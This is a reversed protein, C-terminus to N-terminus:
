RSASGPASNTTVDTSNSRRSRQFSSQCIGRRYPMRWTRPSFPPGARQRVREAHNVQHEADRTFNFLARRVRVQEVIGIRHRAHHKRERAVGVQRGDAQTMLADNAVEGGRVNQSHGPIVIRVPM